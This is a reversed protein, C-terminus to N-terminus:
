QMREKPGTPRMPVAKSKEFFAQLAREAVLMHGLITALHDMGEVAEGTVGGTARMKRVIALCGEVGGGVMSSQDLFALYEPTTTPVILVVDQGVFAAAGADDLDLEVVVRAM